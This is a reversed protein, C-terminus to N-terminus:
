ALALVGDFVLEAPGSLAVHEGDPGDFMRVGVIGGPVQVRWVDPAGAGAWYRVALASAVAGTGCSLTEGSGREHVRMRIRGVGAEVLPEAPVVFEVNAGADPAPDLIPLYGLDLGALEDDDALAVVVHPNGVDIGVGPRAVPLGKARVLPEGGALRWVGMDVEFGQDSHSVRRIGARTGIAISEGPGLEVLGQDILFRMFVRVGNGCMESASGDANWYDMFWTADPDEAVTAAGASLNTSRVARIFGDAGVGFHRDCVAAIQTPTLETAGDPDAFLVFDNGTGHGKTFRLDFSM